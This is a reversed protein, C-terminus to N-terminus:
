NNPLLVVQVVAHQITVWQCGQAYSFRFRGTAGLPLFTPRRRSRTSRGSPGPRRRLREIPTACSNINEDGLSHGLYPCALFAVVEAFINEGPSIMPLTPRLVKDFTSYSVHWAYHVNSDAFCNLNHCLDYLLPYEITSTCCYILCVAPDPFRWM